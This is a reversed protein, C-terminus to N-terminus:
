KDIRAVYAALQQQQQISQYRHRRAGGVSVLRRTGVGLQGYISLSYEYFRWFQCSSHYDLVTICQAGTELDFMLTVFECRGYM